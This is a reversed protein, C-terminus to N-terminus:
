LFLKGNNVFAPETDRTLVIEKMSGHARYCLLMQLEMPLRSAVQFFRRPGDDGKECTNFFEDSLLVVLVFLEAAGTERVGLERQLEKILVKPAEKFKTLFSAIATQGRAIAVELPTFLDIGCKVKRELDLEAGRLAVLWKVIELYGFCSAWWLATRHDWEDLNVDVRSDKLLLKACQTRRWYVSVVLCSSGNNHQANPNIKPHALLLQVVEHHGAHCALHLATKGYENQRNVDLKPHESLLFKVVAVDNIWAAEHLRKEPEM